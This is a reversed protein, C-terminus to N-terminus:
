VKEEQRDQIRLLSIDSYRMLTMFTLWSSGHSRAMGCRTHHDVQGCIEGHEDGAWALSNIM